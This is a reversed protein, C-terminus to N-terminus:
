RTDMVVNRHYLAFCCLLIYEQKILFYWSRFVGLSINFNSHCLIEPYNFLELVLYKASFFKSVESNKVDIDTLLKM